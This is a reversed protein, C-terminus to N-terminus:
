QVVLTLKTVHILNASGSTFSGSVSLNYSGAPTANVPNGTSSSTNGGGCASFTTGLSLLCLFAIVCLLRRHKKHSQNRSRLLVLGSLGSLALWLALRDTTRPFVPHTLM